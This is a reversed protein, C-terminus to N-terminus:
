SADVIVADPRSSYRAQFRVLQRQTDIAAKPPIVTFAMIVRDAAATGTVAVAKVEDDQAAEAVPYLLVVGQAAGLVSSSDGASASTGARSVRRVLSAAARPSRRRRRGRRRRPPRPRPVTRQRPRSAPTPPVPTSGIHHRVGFPVPDWDAHQPWLARCTLLVATRAM